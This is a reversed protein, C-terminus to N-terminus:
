DGPIMIDQEVDKVNHPYKRETLGDCFTDIAENVYFIEDKNFYYHNGQRITINIDCTTLDQKQLTIFRNMLNNFLQIYINKYHALEINVKQIIEQEYKAKTSEFISQLHDDISFISKSQFTVIEEWTKM